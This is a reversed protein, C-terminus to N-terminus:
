INRHFRTLRELSVCFARLFTQWHLKNLHNMERFYHNKGYWIDHVIGNKKPM